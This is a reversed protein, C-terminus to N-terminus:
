KQAALYFRRLLKEADPTFALALSIALSYRGADVVRVAPLVPILNTAGPLALGERYWQYRLPPTCTAQTWFAAGEGANM